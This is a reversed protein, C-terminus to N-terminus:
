LSLAWVGVCVRRRGRDRLLYGTEAVLVEVALSGGEILVFTGDGAAGVAVVGVCVALLEALVLEPGLLLFRILDLLLSYASFEDCRRRDWSMMTAPRILNRLQSGENTLRRSRM